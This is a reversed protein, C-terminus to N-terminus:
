RITNTEAAALVAIDYPSTTGGPFSIRKKGFAAGNPLAVLNLIKGANEIAPIKLGRLSLEMERLPNFHGHTAELLTATLRM